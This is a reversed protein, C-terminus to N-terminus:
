VKHRRSINNAKNTQLIWVIQQIQITCNILMVNNISITILARLLVLIALLLVKKYRFIHIAPRPTCTKSFIPILVPDFRKFICSFAYFILFFYSVSSENNLNSNFTRKFKEQILNVHASFKQGSKM